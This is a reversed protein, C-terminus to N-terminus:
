FIGLSATLDYVVDTLGHSKVEAIINVGSGLPARIGSM